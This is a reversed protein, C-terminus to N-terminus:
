PKKAEQVVERIMYSLLWAFAVLFTIATIPDQEMMM